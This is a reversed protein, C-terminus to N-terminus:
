LHLLTGHLASGDDTLLYSKSSTPFEGNVQNLLDFTATQKKDTVTLITNQGALSKGALSIKEGKAFPFNVLDISDTAAVITGVTTVTGAFNQAQDLKLTGVSGSFRVDEFSFVTGTVELTASIGIIESGTNGPDSALSGISLSSDVVISGDNIVSGPNALSGSLHWIANPDVAMTGFNVFNTASLTGSSAASGLELVSLLYRSGLAGGGISYGPGLVLRGGNSLVIDGSIRGTDVVTGGDALFVEGEITGSNAVTGAGNNIRVGNSILATSGSNIVAGGDHLYVGTSGGLITGSNSVAGGNNFAKVGNVAGEILGSISNVVSGSGGIGNFLEVGYGYSGFGTITGSNLVTGYTTFVGVLGGGISAGDGNAVIGGSQIVVGLGRADSALITGFNSVTGGAGGLGVGLHIGAILATSGSNTVDGGANLLIGSANGDIPGMGSITGSNVVTGAGGAISVGVGYGSILAATGSNDVYGGAGLYVGLNFLSGTSSITGSNVLTGAGGAILVGGTYGSILAATGSNDVYGGASLVVGLGSGAVVTGYNVLTWAQANSGYVANGSSTDVAGANTITLPSAYNGSTGLTIGNSITTTITAM